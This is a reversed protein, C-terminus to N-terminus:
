KGGFIEDLKANLTKAADEPTVGQTFLMELAEALAQNAKSFESMTVTQALKEPVTTSQEIFLDMMAPDKVNYEFPGEIDTRGPLFLGKEVFLKMNEPEGMFALFKKAAEAHKSNKPIALANGGMDSAMSKNQPMYTVGWEYDAMEQEWRPIMWNGNILMGATGSTFLLNFDETGKMSNGPSMVTQFMNQLFALTQIAEETEVNGKTFDDTALSAGNQFFFPLSRYASSEKWNFALGYQALGKDQIMKAVELFEGWTWADELKSPPEVGLQDMYTKNYFVALTDTHHPLGYIKDEFSVATLLSQNFNEKDEAFLDTVDLLAKKSAFEGIKQYQIRFVDPADNGAIRTQIKTYYDSSSPSPVQQANVKIDPHEAEFKAVLDRFAEEEGGAGAWYVFEITEKEKNAGASQNTSGSSPTGGSREQACGALLAGAMAFTVVGTMMKRVFSGAM